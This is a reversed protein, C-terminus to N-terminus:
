LQEWLKLCWSFVSKSSFNKFFLLSSLLFLLIINDIMLKILQHLSCKDITQYGKSAAASNNTLGLSLRPGVAPRSPSTASAVGHSDSGAVLNSGSAQRGMVGYGPATSSIGSPVHFPISNGFVSM